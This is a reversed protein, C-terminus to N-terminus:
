PNEGTRFLHIANQRTIRATEEPSKGLLGALAAVTHGLFAPENRKGRVPQPALWPADTEVLLRDLPIDRVLKQLHASKPFTVPGALSIYFGLALAQEAIGPGESFCHMVGQLGRGRFEGLIRLTTEGAQRSHVVLPLNRELALAVHRRFFEEQVARPAYDRYFDLGTEGIARVAPHASFTRIEEWAGAASQTLAQPHIGVAPHIGSHTESLAIARRAWATDVSAELIGVVGAARARTIADERDADFAPDCLHSHADFLSGVSEPLPLPPTM